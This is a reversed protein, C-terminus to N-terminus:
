LVDLAAQLAEEVDPGIATLPRRPGGVPRGLMASGAKVVASANNNLLISALPGLRSNIAEASAIDQDIVAARYLDVCHQPVLSAMGSSWGQAGATFAALAHTDLGGGLITLRDGFRRVLETVRYVDKNPEKVAVVEPLEVLRELIDITLDVMTLYPNNYLMLPLPAAETVARVHAIVQDASLPYYTPFSLMLGDAGQQAAHEAFSVAERTTMASASIIVPVRGAVVDVAVRAIELREAPTLYSFEGTSGLPIIGHVGTGALWDMLKEFAKVDIEEGDDSMPTPPYALVGNMRM